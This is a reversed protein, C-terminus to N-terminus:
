FSVCRIREIIASTTQPNEKTHRIEIKHEACHKIEEPLLGKKTYDWGKAFVHPQWQRLAHLSDHCYTVATVCRLAELMERREEQCIIPRGPKGVFEDMTLGVVLVDGYSRAEELHRIHGAHLLDFVGNALVIKM